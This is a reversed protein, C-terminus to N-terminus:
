ITMCFSVVYFLPLFLNIYILKVLNHILKESIGSVRDVEGPGGRLRFFIDKRM